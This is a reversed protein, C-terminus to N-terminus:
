DEAKPPVPLDLIEAIKHIYVQVSHLVFANNHRRHVNEMKFVTASPLRSEILDCLANRSADCDVLAVERTGDTLKFGRQRLEAHWLKEAEADSVPTKSNILPRDGMLSCSFTVKLCHTGFSIDSIHGFGELDWWGNLHTGLSALNLQTLEPAQAQGLQKELEHVRMNAARLERVRASREVAGDTEIGLLKGLDSLHFESVKLINTALDRSLSEGPKVGGALHAVACQLDRVTKTLVEADDANLSITTDPVEPTDVHLNM